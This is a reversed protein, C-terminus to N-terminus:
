CLQVVRLEGPMLKRMRQITTIQSVHLKDTTKVEIWLGCSGDTLTLDPWGARYQYPNEAIAETLIRLQKAGITEFLAVINEDNLGPYAEQIFLPKYIERFGKVVSDVTASEVAAAIEATHNEHITLQAETFRHCADERSGFPNLQELVDLSAARILVLVAGGECYTGAYGQQEFYRWAALEPHDQYDLGSVGQIPINLQECQVALESTAVAQRWGEATLESNSDVYGRSRLANLTGRRIASTETGLLSRLAGRM